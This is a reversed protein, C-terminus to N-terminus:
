QSSVVLNNIRLSCNSGTAAGTSRNGEHNVELLLYSAGEGNLSLRLPSTQAVQITQPSYITQGQSNLASVTLTAGECGQSVIARGKVSVRDNLAGVYLFSQATNQESEQKASPPAAVNLVYKRAKLPKASAQASQGLIVWDPQMGLQKNVQAQLAHLTRVARDPPTPRLRKYVEVTVDNQLDFQQPLREFDETFEWGQTFADFVARIAKQQEENWGAFPKTVVVYQAELLEEIPYFGDSDTPSGQKLQLIRGENGYLTKEAAMILHMPFHSTYVVFIPERNPAVDRLFEVVQTVTEYNGRVPPPYAAAFWSRTLHSYNGLPTISTIINAMGYLGILGLVLVRKYGSSKLWITWGLAAVGLAIFPAFHLAYYTENYRLRFLWLPLSILGYTIIFLTTPKALVRTLLGSVFGLIVLGWVLWGYLSGYFWFVEHIPRSWSDYLSVYDSTFARITFEWAFLLLTIASTAGVLSLRIAVHGLNKWAARSNQRFELYFVVATHIVIAGLIAIAAYAFHRRLLVAIGLLFGLFPVQWRYPLLWVFRQNIGQLTVWMALVIFLAASIDPYGQLITIWTPTILAAILTASAFVTKPYVPVLKTAIAGITLCFPLVYVLSLSIVYALYSNGLVLLFPILPLSFFKNYDLKFSQFVLQIANLPSQRFAEPVGIAYEYFGDNIDGGLFARQSNIYPATFAVTIILLSIYLSAYFLWNRNFARPCSASLKM